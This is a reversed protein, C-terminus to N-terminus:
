QVVSAFGQRALMRIIAWAAAAGILLSAVGTGYEGLILMGVGFLSAYVLVIGAVWCLALRGLGTDAAVDPVMRAIPAWGRGGPHVRRYFAILTADDVPRTLYTVAIWVVTTVAVIAFLSEPFRIGTLFRIAGYTLFPTIMAAIESWANVRWWYWRLILVLGLGAGAEIVFAWAGSITDLVGTVLVSLGMICMTTIRAVRVLHREGAAPRLFRKYVDNIIYSTGWNLQTSVTSM